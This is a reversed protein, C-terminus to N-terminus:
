PEQTKKIFQGVATDWANEVSKDLTFSSLSTGTIVCLQRNEYRINLYLGNVTGPNISINNKNLFAAISHPPMSFVLKMSLPTRKGKIMNFCYPKLMSWPAYPSEALEEKEIDNLFDKLMRGDIKFSVFTDIQLERCLFHDFTDKIFLHSMFDKINDLEISIM